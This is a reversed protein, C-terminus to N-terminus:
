GHGKNKEDENLWIQIIEAVTAPNEESLRAIIKARQEDEPNAQRTQHVVPQPAQVQPPPPPTPASAVDPAPNQANKYAAASVSPSIVQQMNGASPQAATALESVPKMIPTWTSKTAKRVNNLMVVIIIFIIVLALVGGGLTGLQFKQQTQQDQEFEATQQEAVSRDFQISEVVIQDGREEDIGAAAAVASKIINMQDEDTVNDVMVSVSIRKIQGPAFIEHSQTQSIEYNLTEESRKYTTPGEAGTVTPVPTPLNSSAGPIGSLDGGNTAYAEDIKQSSRIASPTPDYTNSTVERQTWDMTVAIQVTSRNPGLIQDLLTQVRNRIEKAATTEAAYRDSSTGSALGTDSGGGALMNGNGDIIVVNEPKLNEVSSAVLQTIARIQASDLPNSSSQKIMVSATTESQESTLLTKEPTVIHVQVAEVPDLSSITRELEGELARQYNVRQSFENMGLTNGDFLEFGVTSNKPLGARAIKLRTEYVQDAPVMITGTGNLKYPIGGDTLEQVIEAADSESLGSYAVSYTPTNAWSVLVPVLVLVALLLTIIM